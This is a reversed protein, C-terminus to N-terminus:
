CGSRSRNRSPLEAARGRHLQARRLVLPPVPLPLFRLDRSSARACGASRWRGGGAVFGVDRGLLHRRAGRGREPRHLARGARWAGTELWRDLRRAAETHIDDPIPWDSSFIRDRHAAAVERATRARDQYRVLVAREVSARGLRLDATLGRRLDVSGRAGGSTWECLGSLIANWRRHRAARRRRAGTVADERSQGTQM